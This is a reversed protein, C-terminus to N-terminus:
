RAGAGPAPGFVFSVVPPREQADRVFARMQLPMGIRIAGLEGELPALVRIGEPLEVLGMAFPQFPDPGRYDGPPKHRVVTYTYLTGHRSLARAHLQTGGCNPCVANTGLTTEECQECQTGMLRVADLDHLPTSLLGERVATRETNAVNGPLTM